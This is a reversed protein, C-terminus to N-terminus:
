GGFAKSLFTVVIGSGVGSGLGVGIALFLLRSMRAGHPCMAVHEALVEKVIQRAMEKIEAKDGDSLSM